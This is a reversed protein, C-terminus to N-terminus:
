IKSTTTTHGSKGGKESHKTNCSPFVNQKDTSARLLYSCKGWGQNKEKNVITYYSQRTQGM